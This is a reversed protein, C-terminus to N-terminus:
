NYNFFSKTRSKEILINPNERQARFGVAFNRFDSMRCGVDSMRCEVSSMRCGVDSMRCGADPMQTYVEYWDAMYDGVM